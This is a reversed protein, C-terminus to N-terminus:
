MVDFDRKRSCVGITLVDVFVEELLKESVGSGRTSTQSSGSLLEDDAEMVASKEKELCTM